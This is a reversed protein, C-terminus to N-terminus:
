RLSENRQKWEEDTYLMGDPGLHQREPLTRGGTLEDLRARAKAKRRDLDEQELVLGEEVKLGAKENRLEDRQSTIGDMEMDLAEPSWIGGPATFLDGNALTVRAIDALDRQRRTASDIQNQIHESPLHTTESM